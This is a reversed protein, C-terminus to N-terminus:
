PMLDLNKEKEKEKKRVKKHHKKIDEETKRLQPDEWIKGKEEVKPFPKIIEPSYGIEEMREM